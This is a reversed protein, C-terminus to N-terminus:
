PRTKRELDRVGSRIDKVKWSYNRVNSAIDLAIWQADHGILEPNIPRVAWELNRAASDLQFQSERYLDRADWEMSITIKNLEDAKVAISLLKRIDAYLKKADNAYGNTATSMERLSREFFPDPKGSSSIRKADSELRNIDNKLWTTKSGLKRLASGGKTFKYVLDQGVDKIDANEKVSEPFVIAAKVPFVEMEAMKNTLNFSGFGIGKLGEMEGAKCTATFGFVIVAILYIKKM